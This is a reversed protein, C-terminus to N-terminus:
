QFFLSINKSNNISLKNNDCIWELSNNGNWGGFYIINMNCGQVAVWITYHFCPQKPHRVRKPRRKGKWCKKNKNIWLYLITSTVFCLKSSSNGNITCRISFADNTAISVSNVARVISSFASFDLYIANNSVLLEPWFIIPQCIFPYADLFKM